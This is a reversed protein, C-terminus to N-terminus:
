GGIKRQVVNADGLSNDGWAVIVGPHRGLADAAVANYDGMYVPNVVLDQHGTVPAFSRPTARVTTFTRGGNTSRGVFTDILLNREDRRRDYYSVWVRGASDVEVAPFWQDIGLRIDDDNVRVPASWTAGGDTSRALYVDGFCYTAEGLCFGLPDPKQRASGDQFTVYVTGRRSSASRDVALGQLDLFARFMGQLVASDGIGTTEAIRRAPGFSGGLDTSRSIRLERNASADAPYREWALYVQDGVGAEVQSGQVFGGSDCVEDLVVPAGFTRGGDTSRVYEIVNRGEDPCAGAGSVDFHTYSVHLVDDDPSSTPGPEVALWPKDLFHLAADQASAMIAPGFSTGGDTSRSVSIGSRGFAADPGTDIALSAYYFTRQATCAVVPDGLLDRFELDAPIPDATLAGRDTWTRGADVSQSWGNFSLSQSPSLALFSSAVFSGSDNFGIVANRGCWGASTESQTMGSLRSFLDEAAFPDNALGPPALRPGQARAQGLTRAQRQALDAAESLQAGKEALTILKQGGGSLRALVEPRLRRLYNKGVGALVALHEGLTMKGATDAAAGTDPAAGAPGATAAPGAGAVLALVVLGAGARTGWRQASRRRWTQTVHEGKQDRREHGAVGALFTKM